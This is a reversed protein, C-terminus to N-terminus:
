LLLLPLIYLPLLILMWPWDINHTLKLGIFLVTLMPIFMAMTIAFAITLITKNFLCFINAFVEITRNEDIKIKLYRGVNM